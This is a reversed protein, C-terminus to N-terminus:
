SSQATKVFAWLHVWDEALVSTRVISLGLLLWGDVLWRVSAGRPM